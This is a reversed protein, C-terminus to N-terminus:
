DNDLAELAEIMALLCAGKQEKTEAEFAFYWASDVVAQMKDFKSHLITLVKPGEELKYKPDEDRMTLAEVAKGLEIHSLFTAKKWEIAADVVVAIKDWDNINLTMSKVGPQKRYRYEEARNKLTNWDTM